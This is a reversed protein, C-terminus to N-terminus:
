CDIWCMTVSNEWGGVTGRVSERVKAYWNGLDLLNWCIWRRGCHYQMNEHVSPWVKFFISPNQRQWSYSFNKWPSVLLPSRTSLSLFLSWNSFSAEQTPIALPPLSSVRMILDNYLYGCYTFNQIPSSFTRTVVRVYWIRWWCVMYGRIRGGNWLTGCELCSHNWRGIKVGSWFSQWSVKRLRSALGKVLIKYM